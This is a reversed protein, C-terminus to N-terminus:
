WFGEEIKPDALPNTHGWMANTGFVTSIHQVWGYLDTSVSSFDNILTAFEALADVTLKELTEQGAALMGHHIDYSEKMYGFDGEECDMNRKMIAMTDDDMHYLPKLWSTMFPNFSLTKKRQVAGALDVSTVVYVKSSMFNLTYIPLRVRDSSRSDAADRHM